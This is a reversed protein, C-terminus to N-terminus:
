DKSVAKLLSIDETVGPDSLSKSTKEGAGCKKAGEHASSKLKYTKEQDQLM